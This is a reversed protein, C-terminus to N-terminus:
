PHQSSNIFFHQLIKSISWFSNFMSEPFFSQSARCLVNLFWSRFLDRVFRQFFKQSNSQSTRFFGRSFSRFFNWSGRFSLNFFLNKLFVSFQLVVVPLFQTRCYSRCLIWSFKKLLSVRLYIVSHHFLDRSFKPLLKIFFMLIFKLIGLTFKPFSGQSGFNQLFSLFNKFM